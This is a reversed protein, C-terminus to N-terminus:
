DNDSNPDRDVRDAIYARLAAKRGKSRQRARRKADRRRQEQNDLSQVIAMDGRQFAAVRAAALRDNRNPKRVGAEEAAMERDIRALDDAFSAPYMPRDSPGATSNDVANSTVSKNGVAGGDTTSNDDVHPTGVTNEAANDVVPSLEGQAKRRALEIRIAQDRERTVRM